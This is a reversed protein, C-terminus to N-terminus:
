LPFFLAFESYKDKESNVEIRGNHAKMVHFVYNLGLGFGTAGGKPTRKVASAREFKDFIVHMDEESMGMGDDKIRIISCCEKEDNESTVTIHVEKPNSYKISNDIINEIVEKLYEEDAYIRSANLAISFTIEKNAKLKFKECIPTLLAQMDVWEKKLEIKENELKSILLIKNILALLRQTEEEIINFYREKKEPKSELKGSRLVHAGMLISSLPTKMDHVMAYSFDERVTAIRKQRIIIRIQYVICYLILIFMLVTAILLLTMKSLIDKYPSIMIAQIAISNDSKIPVIITSLTFLSNLKPGTSQIVKKTQPNFLMLQYKCHLDIEKLSTGFITDLSNLHISIKNDYINDVIPLTTGSKDFLANSNQSYSITYNSNPYRISFRKCIEKNISRVLQKNVKEMYEKEMLRYNNTIWLTLLITVVILGTISIFKYLSIRKM